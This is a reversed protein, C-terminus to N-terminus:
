SPKPLRRIIPVTARMSKYDFACPSQPPLSVLPSDLSTAQPDQNSSAVLQRSGPCRDSRPGHLHLTGASTVVFYGKCVACEAKEAM